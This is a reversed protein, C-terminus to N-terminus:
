GASPTRGVPLEGRDKVETDHPSDSSPPGNVAQDGSFEPMTKVRRQWTFFFQGALLGTFLIILFIVLWTTTTSPADGKLPSEELMEPVPPGGTFSLLKEMRALDEKIVKVTQLNNRYAGIRQKRGITEDAQMMLIEDLGKLVSGSLQKAFPYYESKELRGLILNTHGKLGELEEDPIFWVDQVIVEFVRTQKPALQVDDKYVYYLSRETDFEVELEGNDLIDKPKVEQPLDIRVPVTRAKDASPNVAVVRMTVPDRQAASWAVQGGLLGAAILCLWSAESIRSM